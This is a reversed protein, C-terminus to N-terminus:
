PVVEALQKQILTTRGEVPVKFRDVPCESPKYMQGPELPTRNSPDVNEKAHRATLRFRM